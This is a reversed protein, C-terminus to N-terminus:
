LLSKISKIRKKKIQNTGPSNPATAKLIMARQLVRMSGYTANIISKNVKVVIIVPNNKNLPIRVIAARIASNSHRLKVLLYIRSLMSMDM